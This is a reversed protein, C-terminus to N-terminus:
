AERFFFIMIKSIAQMKTWDYKFRVERTPKFSLLAEARLLGNFRQPHCIVRNDSAFALVRYFIGTEHNITGVLAEQREWACGM